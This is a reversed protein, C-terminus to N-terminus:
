KVSRYNAYTGLSSGAGQLLTAGANLNGATRASKGAMRDLMSQNRLQAAQITGGREVDLASLELQGATEVQVLLPSGTAAVVGAKAYLARQRSKLAEGKARQENAAARSDRGADLAAQDNIAANTNNLAQQAKGQQYSSYAAVGTGIASVALAAILLTSTAIAM